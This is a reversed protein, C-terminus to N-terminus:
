FTELRRGPNMGVAYIRPLLSEWVLEGKHSVGIAGTQRRRKKMQRFIERFAEALRSGDEAKQAIRVALSEEVIEEGLGTCSIATLTDAYNGSPICSDSVRGPTAGLKGGTSTAAALRGRRDAAVAGVTGYPLRQNKKWQQLREPTVPNWAPYGLKRALLTAERSSLIRDPKDLLFAAILIPNRVEEVNIVGAFRRKSGDMVSASMRAQGDAQLVSGTGANFFPDDEMLRVALLVTKLAGHKRLHRYSEESIDRLRTRIAATREAPAQTGAGGHIFLAPLPSKIKNLPM